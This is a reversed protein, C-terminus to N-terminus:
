ETQEFLREVKTDLAEAIEMGLLMTPCRDGREFRAIAARSVKVREALEDQTLHKEERLRKINLGINM